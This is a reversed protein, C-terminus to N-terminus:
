TTLARVCVRRRREPLKSITTDSINLSGSLVLAEPLVELASNSAVISRDVRVDAPLQRFKCGTIRLAGGVVLGAPLSESLMESGELVLDETVELNDPLVLNPCAYIRLDGRVTLPSPLSRLSSNSLSLSGDIVRVSQPFESIDSLSCYSGATLTIGEHSEVAAIRQGGIEIFSDM